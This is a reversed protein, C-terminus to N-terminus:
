HGLRSNSSHASTKLVVTVSTNLCCCFCHLVWSVHMKVMTEVAATTYNWADSMKNYSFLYLISKFRPCSCLLISDLLSIMCLVTSYNGHMVSFYSFLMEKNCHCFCNQFSLDCLDLGFHSLPGVFTVNKIYIKNSSSCLLDLLSVIKSVSVFSAVENSFTETRSRFSKKTVIQRYM